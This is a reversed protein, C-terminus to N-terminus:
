GQKSGQGAHTLDRRGTRGMEGGLRKALRAQRSAQGGQRRAHRAEGVQRGETELVVLWNDLNDLLM